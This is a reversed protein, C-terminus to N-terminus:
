NESTCTVKDRSDVEPDNHTVQLGAHSAVLPANDELSDFWLTLSPLAFSQMAKNYEAPSEGDVHPDNPCPYESTQGDPTMQTAALHEHGVAQATVTDPPSVTKVVGVVITNDLQYLIETSM